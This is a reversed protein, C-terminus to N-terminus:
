KSSVYQAVTRPIYRIPRSRTSSFTAAWSNERGQILDSLIMAAVTGNSLGWKRYATALYLHNSWPYVKGVLPPGDYSMYDRDSWRYTIEEIGFHEAAYQALREYRMQKNGRGRLGPIHGGGGILLWQENDVAIPFISYNDKDPSIYMGPIGASLRGAVIYSETPYELLCYSGRALLPFTPVNTAVVINKAAVSGRSTQIRAPSGDHISTVNSQEFVYSGQGHVAQALGMVYKVSHFKGQRAFKVAAQVEFPLPTIMEFSAPLGMQAATDAESRLQEVQSSDTTYVYHDERQWDCQIKEQTIIREVQEIAAQNATGYVRATKEGLRKRFDAYILSHQSTVKGTTRGTTGGGITSKEVVAVTLGAKKLLYATTLGTIGAGIIAIDVEIDNDLVPYQAAMRNHKWLSVDEKPLDLM